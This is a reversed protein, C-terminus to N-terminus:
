NDFIKQQLASVTVPLPTISTATKIFLCIEWAFFGFTEIQVMNVVTKYNNDYASLGSDYWKRVLFLVM